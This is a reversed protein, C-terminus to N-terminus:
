NCIYIMKPSEIPDFPEFSFGGYIAEINWKEDQLLKCIQQNDLYHHTLSSSTITPMDSLYPNYIEHTLKLDIIHASFDVLTAGTVRIFQDNVKYEGILRKWGNLQELHMQHPNFVELIIRGNSALVRRAERLSLPMYQPFLEFLFNNMLLVLNYNGSIGLQIADSCLWIPPKGPLLRSMKRIGVLLMEIEQDVATVEFGSQALPISLRGTGAGLEMIKSGFIDAMHIVFEVEGPQIKGQDLDYFNAYSSYQSL